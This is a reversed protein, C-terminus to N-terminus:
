IAKSHANSGGQSASGFYLTFTGADVAYSRCVDWQSNSAVKSVWVKPISLDFSHSEGQLAVMIRGAITNAIESWFDSIVDATLSQDALMPSEAAIAKAATESLAIVLQNKGASMSEIEILLEEGTSVAKSQLPSVELFLFTELAKQVSADLIEHIKGVQLNM